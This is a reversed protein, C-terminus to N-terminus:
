LLLINNVHHGGSVFELKSGCSVIGLLGFSGGLRLDDCIQVKRDFIKKRFYWLDSVVVGISNSNGLHFVFSLSIHAILLYSLLTVLVGQFRRQLLFWQLGFKLKRMSRSRSALRLYRGLFQLLEVSIRINKGESSVERTFCLMELPWLPFGVFSIVRYTGSQDFLERLLQLKIFNIRKEIIIRDFFNRLGSNKILLRMSLPAEFFQLTTNTREFLWNKVRLM